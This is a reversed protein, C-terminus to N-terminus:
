AALPMAPPLEKPKEAVPANVQYSREREQERMKEYVAVGPPRPYFHLMETRLERGASNYIRAGRWWVSIEPRGERGKAHLTFALAEDDLKATSCLASTKRTGLGDVADEENLYQEFTGDLGYETRYWDTDLPLPVNAHTVYGDPGIVCAGDLNSRGAAVRAIDPDKLVNHRKGNYPRSDRVYRKMVKHESEPNLVLWTIGHEEDDEVSDAIGKVLRKMEAADATGNSLAEIQEELASLMEPVDHKEQAARAFEGAVEVLVRYTKAGLRFFDSYEPVYNALERSFDNTNGTMAIVKKQRGFGWFLKIEGKQFVL